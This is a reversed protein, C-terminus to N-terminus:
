IIKLAVMNGSKKCMAKSVCGYSGKGLIEVLEYKLNVIERIDDSM